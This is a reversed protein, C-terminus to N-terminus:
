DKRLEIITSKIIYAERGSAKKLKAEWMKIAQRLEKM